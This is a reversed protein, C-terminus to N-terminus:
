NNLIQNLYTQFNKYGNKSPNQLDIMENLATDFVQWNNKIALDIIPYIANEGYLFLLTNSAPEDDAFYMISYDEGKIERHNDKKIINKFHTEFIESFLVPILLDEDVDEPSNIRQNSNFLVIDWSM